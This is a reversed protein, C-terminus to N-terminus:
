YSSTRPKTTVSSDSRCSLRILHPKYMALNVRAPREQTKRSQGTKNEQYSIQNSGDAIHVHLSNYPPENAPQALELTVTNRDILNIPIIYTRTGSDNQGMEDLVTVITRMSIAVSCDKSRVDLLSRTFTAERTQYSTGGWILAFEKGWAQIKDQIFLVKGIENEVSPEDPQEQRYARFDVLAASLHGLCKETRGAYMLWPGTRASESVRMLASEAARCDHNDWATRGEAFADKDADSIKDQAHSSAIVL